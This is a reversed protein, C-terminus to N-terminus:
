CWAWFELCPQSCLYLRRLILMNNRLSRHTPSICAVCVCVRWICVHRPPRRSSGRLITSNHYWLFQWPVMIGALNHGNWCCSSGFQHSAKSLTSSFDWPSKAQLRGANNSHNNWIKHQLSWWSAQWQWHKNSRFRFLVFGSLEVFGSFCAPVSDALLICSKGFRFDLGSCLCFQVTNAYESIMWCNSESSLCLALSMIACLEAPDKRNNDHLQFQFAQCSSLRQWDQTCLRWSSHM